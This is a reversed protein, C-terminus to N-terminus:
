SGGDSGACIRCLIRCLDPVSGACNGLNSADRVVLTKLKVTLREIWGVLQTILIKRPQDNNFAIRIKMKKKCLIFVCIELVSAAGFNYTIIFLFIYFDIRRHNVKATSKQTVFIFLKLKINEKKSHCWVSNHTYYMFLSMRNKKHYEALGFESLSTTLSGKKFDSIFLWKVM